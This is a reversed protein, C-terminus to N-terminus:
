SVNQLQINKKYIIDNQALYGFGFNLQNIFPYSLDVSYTNGRAPTVLVDYGTQYTAYITLYIIYIARM